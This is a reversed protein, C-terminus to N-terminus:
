IHGLVCLIDTAREAGQKYIHRERVVEKLTEIALDTYYQSDATSLRFYVIGLYLRAEPVGGLDIASRLHTVAEKLHESPEALELLPAYQGKKQFGFFHQLQSVVQQRKAKQNEKIQQAEKELCLEALKFHMRGTNQTKDEVQPTMCFAPSLSIIGVTTTLLFLIIM